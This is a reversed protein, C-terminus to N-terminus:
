EAADHIAPAASPAASLCGPFSTNYLSPNKLGLLLRDNPDSADYVGDQDALLTGFLACVELLHHWDQASRALRRMELGLVLGGHNLTVEALLRQFGPRHQASAGSHGQDEDILVM